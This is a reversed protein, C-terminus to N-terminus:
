IELSCKEGVSVQAVKNELKQMVLWLLGLGRDYRNRNEGEWGLIRDRSRSEM